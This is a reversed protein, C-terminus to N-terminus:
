FGGGSRNGSGGRGSSGGGDGRSRGGGDGGSTGMNGAANRMEQLRARQEPTLNNIDFGEPLGGGERGPRLAQEARRKAEDEQVRVGLDKAEGTAKDLQDPSSPNLVSTTMGSPLAPLNVKDKYQAAGSVVSDEAKLGSIVVVAKGNTAGLELKRKDWVGNVCTFAYYDGGHEVVCHTPIMLVNDQKDVLIRTDATMGPRLGERPDLKITIRYEKVNGMWMNTPQPFENVKTVVGTIIEGPLADLRLTVPMNVKVHNIRGENVDATVQLRSPDPLLIITQRERVM